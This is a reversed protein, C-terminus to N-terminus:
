YMEGSRMVYLVGAIKIASLVTPNTASVVPAAGGIFKTGVPFSVTSPAIIMLTVGQGDGMADFTLTLAGSPPAIYHITGNAPNVAYSTATSTVVTETYAGNVLIGKEGNITVTM